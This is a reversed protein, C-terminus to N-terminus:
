LIRQRENLQEMHPMSSPRLLCRPTRSPNLWINKKPSKAPNLNSKLWLYSFFLRLTTLDYWTMIITYSLLPNGDSLASGAASCTERFPRPHADGDWKARVWRYQKFYPCTAIRPPYCHYCCPYSPIYRWLSGVTLIHPNDAFPAHAGFHKMSNTFYNNAVLNQALRNGSLSMQAPKDVAPLAVVGAHKPPVHHWVVVNVRQCVLIVM